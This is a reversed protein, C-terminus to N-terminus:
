RPVQTFGPRETKPPDVVEITVSARRAGSSAVLTWRGLQLPWFTHEDADLTLEKGAATWRVPAIDARLEIRQMSRDIPDSTRNLVFVDGNQPFLIRLSGDQEPPKQWRALQRPLIWETVVATCSSTPRVGSTACIPVRVYGAPPAFPQPEPRAEYLHLMIHNWLPGGGSVGSVGQMPSGDFNGVWVGVTYDRTYGVTWTDRYDSSTGTKVAADFPLRLISNVGFSQARAYPDALMRTVLQWTSPVGIQVAPAYAADLTTRLPIMSGDRALAVYARVLEWLSVEGSGLTLGLGYYSAPKTMHAFGLRRLRELFVRVGLRSLVRVAPVNLSNALAYRVRVPGAFRMSYDAPQYLRGGPIAYTAPADDLITTPEIAGRELALEYMFPKLASGPQRLALVGDNRGLLADSFYDPSGVYALVDGTRNDVVLAAADTVHRASLAATIAQAQAQVFAQLPADLTTRVLAEKSAVRPYIAFLLHQAALPGGRPPLVAVSERGAEEAQRASIAGGAVMRELVYRQRARLANWDAYPSLRSPDNPIAALLAAQALDLDAASVGFYARSAAEVGYLDGGMPVRNVYAQLVANPSSGLVIREAGAIQEIKGAITSPDHWISRALQMAITSGGSRAAGDVAYEYAARLLAAGDVAGHEYFRADEAAVIAKLFLPSIRDLPVWAASSDDSAAISGLSLGTRDTFHVTGNEHSLRGVDVGITFRLAIWAIAIVIPALM